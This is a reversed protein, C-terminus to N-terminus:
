LPEQRFSFVMWIFVTNLPSSSIALLFIIQSQEKHSAYQGLRQPAPWHFTAAASGSLRAMREMGCSSLIVKGFIKEVPVEGSVTSIKTGSAFCCLNANYFDSNPGFTIPCFSPPSNTM